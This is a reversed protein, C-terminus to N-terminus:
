FATDEIEKFANAISVRLVVWQELTEYEDLQDQLDSDEYTEIVWQGWTEYNDLALKKANELTKKM